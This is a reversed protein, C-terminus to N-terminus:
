SIEDKLTTIEGKKTDEISSSRGVKEEYKGQISEIHLKM